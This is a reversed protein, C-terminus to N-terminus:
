RARMTPWGNRWWCCLLLVSVVCYCCVLWVQAKGEDDARRKEEGFKAKVDAVRREGAREAELALM